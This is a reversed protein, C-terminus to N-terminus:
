QCDTQYNYTQDLYNNSERSFSEYIAPLKIQRKNLLSINMDITFQESEIFVINETQRNPSLLQRALELAKSGQEQNSIAIGLMGGDAVFSETGGFVPSKSCTETWRVIDERSLDTSILDKYGAIFIISNNQNADLIINKWQEWSETKKTEGWELPENLSNEESLETTLQQISKSEISSADGLVTITVPQEEPDDPTAEYIDHFADKIAPIYPHKYIGAMSPSEYYGYDTVDDITVGTFVTKLNYNLNLPIAETSLRQELGSNNACGGNEALWNVNNTLYTNNSSQPPVLLIGILRQTMDGSLIVLDPKQDTILNKTNQIETLYIECKQRNPNDMDLYYHEIIVTNSFEPHNNRYLDMGRNIETAINSDANTSHIVLIRTQSKGIIIPIGFLLIVLITVLITKTKDM